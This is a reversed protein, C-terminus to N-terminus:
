KFCQIAMAAASTRNDVGLKRYLQELHKNVTRPSMELILAIERNSKGKSIWLLVDSERQTIKFSEKLLVTSDTEEKKINLLAEASDTHGIFEIVYKENEVFEYLHHGKEINRGLWKKVSALIKQREKKDFAGLIENAGPTEWVQFGDRNVAFINQGAHQLAEKASKTLQAHKIHTNMRAILEIPNIPKTVYDSGGAEFSKVISETDTLGTMFIIPTHELAGIKKLELCTEFGDMGPMIADLLIVDPQMKKAINVAQRGELAVLTTMHAKELAHNLMGLTEPSDDVVLVLRENLPHNEM